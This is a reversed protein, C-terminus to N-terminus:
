RATPDPIRIFSLGGAVHCANCAASLQKYARRFAASDTRRIAESVDKLATTGAVIESVPLNVYLTAALDLNDRLKQVEYDAFKWNGASAARWLAVYRSQVLNMLSGLDVSELGSPIRNSPPAAFPVDDALAVSVVLVCAGAIITRATM